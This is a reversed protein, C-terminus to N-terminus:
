KSRDPSGQFQVQACRGPEIKIKQPDDYSFDDQTFTWGAAIPTVVYTGPGVRLRFERNEVAVTRSREGGEIKVVLREPLTDESAIYGEIRDHEKVSKIQAIQELVNKANTMAASNGCGDLEWGRDQESYSLFLLYEQGRKWDFTARASSNEDYVQFRKLVRGKLREVAEMYYYTGLVDEGSRVTRERTLKAMVVLPKAFYEQCVLRPQPLGCVASSTSEMVLLLLLVRILVTRMAPM